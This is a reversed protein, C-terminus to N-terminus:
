ATAERAREDYSAECDSNPCDDWVEGDPITEGCCPCAHELGDDTAYGDLTRNM